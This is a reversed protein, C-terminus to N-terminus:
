HKRQDRDQRIAQEASLGEPLSFKLEDLRALIEERPKRGMGLEAKAAQQLLGSRTTGQRRAEADIRSLLEDPISVM